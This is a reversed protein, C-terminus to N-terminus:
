ITIPASERPRRGLGLRRAFQLRDTDLTGGGHLTAPGRRSVYDFDKAEDVSLDKVLGSYGLIQQFRQSNSLGIMRRLYRAQVGGYPVPDRQLRHWLNRTQLTKLVHGDIIADALIRRVDAQDILRGRSDSHESCYEILRDVAVDGSVSGAGDHELELHTTSVRWGNNEGGVLDEAPVHVDDFFVINKMGMVMPLPQITVGPAHADVYIWSVNEHREGDPNTNVITWLYDPYHTSGVMVKQGNIVYEDGVRKAVTTLTALDSGGQPETMVQWCIVEGKVLPPLIKKKQEENGWQYVVPVVIRALTYFVQSLSLDHRSMEGELVFQHDTDLGGGGYQTPITPFLWGKAGMKRALDRRFRYEVENGRTSWQTSWKIDGRDRMATELWARVEQRFRAQDPTDAEQNFNMIFPGGKKELWSDAIHLSLWM